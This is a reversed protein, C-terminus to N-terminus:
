QLNIAVVVKAHDADTVRHTGQSYVCSIDGSRGVGYAITVLCLGSPGRYNACTESSSPMIGITHGTDHLYLRHKEFMTLLNVPQLLVDSARVLSM